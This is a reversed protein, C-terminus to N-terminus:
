ARVSLSRGEAPVKAASVDCLRQANKGEAVGFHLHSRFHSKGGKCIFTHDVGEVSRLYISSTM